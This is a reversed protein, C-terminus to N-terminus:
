RRHCAPPDPPDAPLTGVSTSPVPSPIALVRLLTLLEVGPVVKALEEVYIRNLRSTREDKLGYISALEQLHAAADDTLHGGNFARDLVDLYADDAPTGSRALNRRVVLGTESNTSRAQSRLHMAGSPPPATWTPPPLLPNTGIADLGLNAARADNLYRALLQATTVADGEATHAGAATIGENIACAGLTRPGGPRLIYAADLTCLTPWPPLPQGTRAFEAHLFALDFLANHAVIIRGALREAIDGAIDAFHPATSVDAQLLGHVHTPGPDRDPNILTTWTSGMRGHSDVAVIAIEIIRDGRNVALGTTEIDIVAFACEALDSLTAADVIDDTPLDTVLTDLLVPAKSGAIDTLADWAGPVDLAAAAYSATLLDDTLYRDHKDREKSKVLAALARPEPPPRQALHAAAALVTAPDAGVTLSMGDPTATLGYWTFALALTTMVDDGRWPLIVTETRNGHLLHEDLGLDHFGSRAQDLLERATRDLYAPVDTGILVQRMRQRVQDAITPAGGTFHPAKGGRAHTVTIVKRSTDINQVRWRRGGFILSSGEVLLRDVPLTGIPRGDAILRYEESSAFAAYFSYHNVLKEGGAGHLLLGSPEQIILDAAGMSRLLSTFMDADVSRFPGQGCLASYTQAAQVGGHQAIVSLIQQILTSLHLAAGHPSEYWGQLLLDIMAITQVLETRLQDTIGSRADLQSESIYARLVAAQGARRGSRGLRQRLSSVTIPAGVQGISDVSGIDVGMELTSTCIATTARSHEKLRAEADERMDRSLNGHHAVFENPVRETECRRRLRDTLQEVQRRSNAFVLNDHGRLVQYLHDAIAADASLASSPDIPRDQDYLAANDSDEPGDIYGRLQMRLESSDGAPDLIVSVQTPDGPRLFERAGSFDGLTASLAIRPIHRRLALEVRHLLSQLQAGRESGIFSHLEDIVVHSVRGLFAAIGTGRNVFMAELSEPTILLLGSPNRLVAGKQSDPVDGHWRHVQLDLTRCLDELRTFQDNILAKLPAIYLAQVGAGAAAVDASVSTSEHGDASWALLSCIPLWAAETKGSATPAAIIVDGGDDLVAHATREQIPRLGPWGQTWLWRQVGPHLREFAASTSNSGSPPM